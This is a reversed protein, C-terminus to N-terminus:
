GPEVSEWGMNRLVEIIASNDKDGLGEVVAQELLTQHLSTLPLEQGFENGLDLILGVDKLHQRLRAEPAYDKEIMRRGKTEMVESRAPGTSLIELIKKPPLGCIEALALGEALVLRHLGLVLNVVLKTTAGAGSDGLYHVRSSLANWIDWCKEFVERDGGVLIQCEGKRIQASSGVLPADLLDMGVDRCRRALARTRIPHSTSMDIVTPPPPSWTMLGGAEEVVEEVENSSPLSLLVRSCSYESLERLSGVRHFRESGIKEGADPHLDYGYVEWDQETLRKALATGVLGLGVLGVELGERKENM